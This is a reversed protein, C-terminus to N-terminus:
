KKKGFGFAEKFRNLPTASYDVYMEPEKVETVFPSM